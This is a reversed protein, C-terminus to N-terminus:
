KPNNTTSPTSILRKPPINRCDSDRFMAIKGDVIRGANMVALPMPHGKRVHTDLRESLVWEGNTAIHLIEVDIRDLHAFVKILWDRIAERGRMPSRMPVNDYIGDAHFLEAMADWERTSWHALFRRMIKENETM